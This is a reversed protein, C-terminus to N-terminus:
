FVQTSLKDKQGGNEKSHRHTAFTKLGYTKEMHKRRFCINFFVYAKPIATLQHTPIATLLL